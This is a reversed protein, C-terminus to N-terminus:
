EHNGGASILISAARLRMWNACGDTFARAM